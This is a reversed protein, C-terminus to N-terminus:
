TRSYSWWYKEPLHPNESFQRWIRGSLFQVLLISQGKQSFYYMRVMRGNPSWAVCNLGFPFNQPLVVYKNNGYIGLVLSSIRVITQSMNYGNDEFDWVKATRDQSVSIIQTQVNHLRHADESFLIQTVPAKHSLLRTQFLSLYKFHCPLALSSFYLYQCDIKFYSWEM